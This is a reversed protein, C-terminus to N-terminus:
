NDGDYSGAASYFVGRPLRRSTILGKNLLLGIHKGAELENIGLARTIDEVTCPRRALAGLIRPQIDENVQLEDAQASAETLLDAKGLLGMAKNIVEDSVPKVWAETGPRDLTNIQVRDPKILRVAEGIRKLEGDSDNVGEALFVELWLSGKFKKNFEALGQIMEEIRISPHPRNIRKFVEDTVADVSASVLDLTMAESRVQENSFLTSNTLLALRYGPHKGKIFRAIEGMRSHLTPEGAGSFTVYDLRPKKSLCHDVEKMVEDGPVYESRKVTLHTTAGCECYICNETCTKHPALDVGLSVGLRRSPVPGFVYKYEM